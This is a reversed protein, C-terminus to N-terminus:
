DSLNKASIRGNNVKRGRSHGYRKNDKFLNLGYDGQIIIKKPYVFMTKKVDDQNLDHVIKEKLMCELESLIKYQDNESNENYFEKFSKKTPFSAKEFYLEGTSKDVPVNIEKFKLPYKGKCKINLIPEGRERFLKNKFSYKNTM